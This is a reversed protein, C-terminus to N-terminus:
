HNLDTESDPHDITEFALFGHNINTQHMEFDDKNVIRIKIHLNWLKNDNYEVSIVKGDIEM